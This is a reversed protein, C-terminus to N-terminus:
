EAIIKKLILERGEVVDMRCGCVDCTFLPMVHSMDNVDPLASKKHGKECVLVAEGIKMEFEADEALTDKALAKAWFKLQEVNLMLFPGVTIYVKKISKCGKASKLVNDIISGAVSLEHM